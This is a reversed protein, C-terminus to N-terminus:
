AQFRGVLTEVDTVGGRGIVPGDDIMRAAVEMGEVHCRPSLGLDGDIIMRLSGLALPAVDLGRPVHLRRVEIGLALAGHVAHASLDVVHPMPVAGDAHLGDQAAAVPQGPEQRVAAAHNGHEIAVIAVFAEFDPVTRVVGYLRHRFRRLVSCPDPAPEGQEFGRGFALVNSKGVM